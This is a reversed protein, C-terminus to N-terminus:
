TVYLLMGAARSAAHQYFRIVLDYAHALEAMDEPSEHAPYGIAECVQQLREDEDLRPDPGWGDPDPVPLAGDPLAALAAAIRGVGDPDVYVVPGYGYPGEDADWGEATVVTGIGRGYIAEAADPGGVIRFVKELIWGDKGTSEVWHMPADLVVDPANHVIARM